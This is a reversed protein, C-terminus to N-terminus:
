FLEQCTTCMDHIRTAHIFSHVKSKGVKIKSFNGRVYYSTKQFVRCTFHSLSLYFSVKKNFPGMGPIASQRKIPKLTALLWVGSKTVYSSWLLASIFNLYNNELHMKFRQLEKTGTAKKKEELWPKTKCKWKMYLLTHKHACTASVIIEQIEKKWTPM